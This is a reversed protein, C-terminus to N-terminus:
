VHARGIETFENLEMTEGGLCEKVLDWNIKPLKSQAARNLPEAPIVLQPQGTHVKTPTPNLGAPNNREMAAALCVAPFREVSRYLEAPAIPKSVYDDMGVSLCRERDGKLAEATMAVIAIHGGTQHERNRIATTAEYGDMVPMQMDMLVVDFEQDALTNVAEQGNEAVVVQHGRSRLLGIAVRRNIENDEVLLVRRAQVQLQPAASPMQPQTSKYRGFQRLVENLLESAIVPKSMFRSIGYKQGLDVDMPTSGSSIMIIPCQLPTGRLSEAFHIGDEGPMHHDLLILRIPHLSAEAQQLAQRGAAASDALVPQMQWHHLIESLIRRNTSNDDVVLVPLDKLSEFEAPALPHQDASVGFEATFHFTSGRGAESEVWMRGHM